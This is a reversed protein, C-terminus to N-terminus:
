DSLLGVRLGRQKLHRLTPEADDRLARAYVEETARRIACAEALQDDTPESTCQAALWPVTQELDGRSGTARETFTAAIANHFADALIGLAAAVRTAGAQRVARSASVSLTGYFDFVVARAVVARVIAAAGDNGLRRQTARSAQPLVPRVPLQGTVGQARRLRGLGEGPRAHAAEPQEVGSGLDRREPM